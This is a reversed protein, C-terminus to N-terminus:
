TIHGAEIKGHFDTTQTLTMNIGWDETAGGALRLIVEAILRGTDTDTFTIFLDDTYGINKIFVVVNFAVGPTFSSPVSVSVIDAKGEPILVPITVDRYDDTVRGGISSVGSGEFVKGSELLIREYM